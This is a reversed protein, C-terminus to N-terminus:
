AQSLPVGKLTGFLKFGMVKNVTLLDEAHTSNTILVKAEIQCEITKDTHLPIDIISGPQSPNVM